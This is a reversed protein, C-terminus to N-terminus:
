NDGLKNTMNVVKANGNRYENSLKDFASQKESQSLKNFEAATKPVGSLNAQKAISAAAAEAGKPDRKFFSSFVGEPNVAKTSKESPANAVTSANADAKPVFINNIATVKGAAINSLTENILEIGEERIGVKNVKKANEYVNKADRVTGIFSGLDKFANGSLISGVVDSAGSVVGGEGFISVTGGGQIQLSSPVKDYYQTAFGKPNNEEVIGQNYFVAEYAITMSSQAVESDSGQEMTDHHWSTVIPNVLTYAQYQHRAMQFIQISNFFPEQTGTDLGYKFGNHAAGKYTNNQYAQPTTVPSPEQKNINFFKMGANVARSVSPSLSDLIKGGILTSLANGTPKGATNGTIPANHAADAYYYGYYLAWLMTTVGANDDHFTINVPEYTIGTQVNKKRNYQHKTEVDVKYKPLDVSKVLLNVINTNQQKFPSNAIVNPNINLVVHYLFKVKPSLQFYTDNYLKAAHQFDGLTGKPNLLGKEANDLFGSLFNAM